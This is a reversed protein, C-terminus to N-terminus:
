YAGCKVTELNLLHGGARTLPFVTDTNINVLIHKM